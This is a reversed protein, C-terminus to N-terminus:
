IGTLIVSIVYEKLNEIKKQKAIKNMEKIMPSLLTPGSFDVNKVINEYAAMMGDLGKVEPEDVYGTVPFFHLVLEIM